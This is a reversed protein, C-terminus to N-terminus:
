CGQSPSQVLMLPKKLANKLGWNLPTPEFGQSDRYIREKEASLEAAALAGSRDSM